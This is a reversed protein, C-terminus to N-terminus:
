LSGDQMPTYFDVRSQSLAYVLGQIWCDSSAARGPSLPLGLLARKSRSVPRSRDVINIRGRCGTTTQPSHGTPAPTPLAPNQRKAAWVGLNACARALGWRGAGGEDRATGPRLGSVDGRGVQDTPPLRAKIALAAPGAAGLRASTSPAKAAGPAREVPLVFTNAGGGEMVLNNSSSIPKRSSAM